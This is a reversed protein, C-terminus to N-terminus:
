SGHKIAYNLLPRPDLNGVGKMTDGTNAMLHIHWANALGAHGIVQGARVTQDVKVRAKEAHGYGIHMGKDFPGVSELVELQIIGDGKARLKPDTPAGLGWWGSSRVDIVRSKVMAFIAPDPPTIVDVGDHVGPHYGWDDTIIVATPTHVRPGDIKDFQRRLKARYARRESSARRKQQADTLSKPAHRLKTRLEPTVGAKMQLGASMGNAHVLAATYSRTSVGYDGDAKIPCDIHMKKFLKKVDNQWQKVDPGHMHPSKIQFTRNSM